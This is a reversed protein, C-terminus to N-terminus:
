PAVARPPKPWPSGGQREACPARLPVDVPPDATGGRGAGRPSHRPLAAEAFWPMVHGKACGSHSLVHWACMRRLHRMLSMGKGTLWVRALPEWIRRM